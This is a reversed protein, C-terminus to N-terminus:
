RYGTLYCDTSVTVLAAYVPIAVGKQTYAGVICLGSMMPTLQSPAVRTRREFKELFSSVVNHLDLHNTLYKEQWKELLFAIKNMM